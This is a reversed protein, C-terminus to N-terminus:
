ESSSSVDQSQLIWRSPDQQSQFFTLLFALRTKKGKFICPSIIFYPFYDVFKLLYNFLNKEIDFILLFDNAQHGSISLSLSKQRFIITSSKDFKRHFILKTDVKFFPL